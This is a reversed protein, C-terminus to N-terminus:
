AADGDGRQNHWPAASAKSKATEFKAIESKASIAGYSPESQRRTPGSRLGFIDVAM